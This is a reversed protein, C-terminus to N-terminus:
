MDINRCKIRTKLTRTNEGASDQATLTIQVGDATGNGNIDPYTFALASINEAIVNSNRILDGNSLSYTITEDDGSITGDENLDMTFRLTANGKTVFGANASRTPDYGAMRIEREMFYMGARLNQQMVAVREQHIYSKHQAQFTYYIGAMAVLAIVMSVMLEVITFGQNGWIKRIHAKM